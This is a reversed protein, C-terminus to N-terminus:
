GEQIETRDDSWDSFVFGYGIQNLTRMSLVICSGSCNLCGLLGPTGFFCFFATSGGPRVALLKLSCNSLTLLLYVTQYLNCLTHIM